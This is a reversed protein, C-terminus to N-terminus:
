FRGIESMSKESALHRELGCLLYWHSRRSGYFLDDAPTTRQNQRRGSSRLHSCSKVGLGRGAADPRPRLGFDVMAFHTNIRTRSPRLPLTCRWSPYQAMPLGQFPGLRVSIVSHLYAHINVGSMECTRKPKECPGADSNSTSVQAIPM